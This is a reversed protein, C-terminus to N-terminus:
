RFTCCVVISNRHQLQSSGGNCAPQFRLESCRRRLPTCGLVTCRACICGFLGGDVVYEAYLDHHPRGHPAQKAEYISDDGSGIVAFPTWVASHKRQFKLCAELSCPPSHM